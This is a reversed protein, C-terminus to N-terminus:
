AMNCAKHNTTTDTTPLGATQPKVDAFRQRPVQQMRCSVHPSPLPELTFSLSCDCAGLAPRRCCTNVSVSEFLLSNWIDLTPLTCAYIGLGCRGMPGSCVVHSIRLVEAFSHRSGDVDHDSEKVLNGDIEHCKVGSAMDGDSRMGPSTNTLFLASMCAGSPGCVSPIIRMGAITSLDSWIHPVPLSSSAFVWLAIYQDLDLLPQSAGCLM